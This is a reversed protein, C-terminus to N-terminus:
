MNKWKKEKFFGHSKLDKMRKKNKKKGAGLRERPDKILLQEILDKANKDFDEPFFVKGELIAEFVSAESEGRFPPVGTLCQYIIWGLGWLDSAFCAINHALMEPSVYLPTGVFTGGRSIEPESYFLLVMWSYRINGSDVM